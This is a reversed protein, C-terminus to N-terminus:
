RRYIKQNHYDVNAQLPEHGWVRTLTALALPRVGLDCEAHHNPCLCLVNSAVDEGLHDGGLPRVHHAEAYSHGDPLMISAGCIQCKYDLLQKVARAVATDRLIRYVTAQIRDPPEGSDSGAPTAPAAPTTAPMGNPNWSGAPFDYKYRKLREYAEVLDPRQFLASWEPRLVYAEVTLDLAKREWLRTFGDSPSSRHILQCATEYGGLEHLMDLYYPARYNVRSNAEQAAGILARTFKAHPDNKMAAHRSSAYEGAAMALELGAKRLGSETGGGLWPSNPPGIELPVINV